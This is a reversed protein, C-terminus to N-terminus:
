EAKYVMVRAAAELAPVVPALTKMDMPLLSGHHSGKGEALEHKMWHGLPGYFGLVERHVCETLKLRGKVRGARSEVWVLEDDKLGKKRATEHNILIRLIFPDREAIEILWPNTAPLSSHHSIAARGSVAYLDYKPDEQHHILAPYWVPIPEFQQCLYNVDLNTKEGVKDRELNERLEDGQAKLKYWYFPLRYQNWGWRYYFRDPPILQMNHGHEKFWALDKGYLGKCIADVYEEYTCEKNIDIIWPEGWCDLGMNAMAMMGMPGTFIELRKALEFYIEPGSMSKYMPAVVPQQLNIGEFFWTMNFASLRELWHVDPLVLDAFDDSEDLWLTIDVYFPIKALAQATMKPDQTSVLSNIRWHMLCECLYNEDIGYKKPDIQGLIAHHMGSMGGGWLAKMGVDEFPFKWPSHPELTHTGMTIGDEDGPYPYRWKHGSLGFTEFAAVGGPARNSGLLMNLVIRAQETKPSNTHCNTGRYGVVAVPRYAYEKGDLVITSGIQAAEGIEKALRRITAAPITTKEAAWEPTYQLIQEKFIQFAPRGEPPKDTNESAAAPVTYTGELAFDKITPDDFSKATNDKADWILPKNTEKDRLPYGNGGILYPANTQKKLFERDYIGLEHVLVYMMALFFALDTAPRIPIWEDAKAAARTQRPDIVVVKLGGKTRGEAVLQALITPAMWAEGLSGGTVIIYKSYRTEPFDLFSGHLGTGMRHIPEGCFGGYGAFYGIRPDGGTFASTFLAQIGCVHVDMSGAYLQLPNKERIKKLKQVFIDFAEEWTIEVWGPDVGVGKKPNTRKMPAKLRYPDYLRMMASNAKACVRGGFLPLDPDGEIRVVVGDVVHVKLPDHGAYCESCCTRVWRNEHKTKTDGMYGGKKSQM